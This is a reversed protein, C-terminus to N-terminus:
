CDSYPVGVAVSLIKMELFSIFGPVNFGRSSSFDTQYEHVTIVSESRSQFILLVLTTM